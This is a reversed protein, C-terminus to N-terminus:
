SFNQFILFLGYIELFSPLFLYRIYKVYTKGEVDLFFMCVTVRCVSLLYHYLISPIRLKQQFTKCDCVCMFVCFRCSNFSHTSPLHQTSKLQFIPLYQLFRLFPMCIFYIFNISRFTIIGFINKKIATSFHCNFLKKHTQLHWLVKCLSPFNIPFSNILLYKSLALM